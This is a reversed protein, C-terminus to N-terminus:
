LLPVAITYPHTQLYNAHLINVIFWCTSGLLLVAGITLMHMTVPTYIHFTMQLQATNEPHLIPGPLDPMSTTKGNGRVLRTLYATPCVMMM